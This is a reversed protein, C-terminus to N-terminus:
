LDLHKWKQVFIYVILFVCGMLQMLSSISWTARLNSTMFMNLM